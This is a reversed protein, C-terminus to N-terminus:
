DDVRDGRWGLKGVICGGGPLEEGLLVVVEGAVAADVAEVGAAPAVDEVAAEHGLFVLEEAGLCVVTRTGPPGLV